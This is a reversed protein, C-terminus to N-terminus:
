PTPFLATFQLAVERAAGQVDPQREYVLTTSRDQLAQFYEEATNDLETLGGQDRDLERQRAVVQTGARNVRVLCEDDQVLVAALDGAKLQVGGIPFPDDTRNKVLCVRAM